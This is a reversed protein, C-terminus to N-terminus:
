IGICYGFYELVNKCFIITLKDYLFCHFNILLTQQVCHIESKVDKIIDEISNFLM